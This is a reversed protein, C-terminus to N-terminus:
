ELMEKKIQRAEHRLKDPLEDISYYWHNFSNKDTGYHKGAGIKKAFEKIPMVQKNPVPTRAVSTFTSDPHKIIYDQKFLIGKGRRLNGKHAFFVGIVQSGQPLTDPYSLIITNLTIYEDDNLIKLSAEFRQNNKAFKKIDDSIPYSYAM